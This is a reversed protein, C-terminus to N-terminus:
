LTYASGINHYYMRSWVNKAYQQSIVRIFKRIFKGTTSQQITVEGMKMAIFNITIYVLGNM